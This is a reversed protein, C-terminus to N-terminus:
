LRPNLESTWWKNRHTLTLVQNQLSNREQEHLYLAVAIAAKEKEDAYAIPTAATAPSQTAPAKKEKRGAVLSFIGLILVLAVLIAFVVMVSVGALQLSEVTIASFIM